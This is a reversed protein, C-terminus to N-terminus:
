EVLYSGQVGGYYGNEQGKHNVICWYNAIYSELKLVVVLLSCMCQLHDGKILIELLIMVLIDLSELELEELSCVFM